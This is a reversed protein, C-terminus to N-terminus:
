GCKMEGRLLILMSFPDEGTGMFFCRSLVSELPLPPLSPAM